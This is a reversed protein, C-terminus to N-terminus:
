RPQDPCLCRIGKAKTKKDYVEFPACGSCSGPDCRGRSPTTCHAGPPTETIEDRAPDYAIVRADGPPGTFLAVLEAPTGNEPITLGSRGDASPVMVTWCGAATAGRGEALSLAQEWEAARITPLYSAALRYRTEDGLRAQEAPSLMADGLRDLLEGFDTSDAMVVTGDSTVLERTALRVVEPQALVAEVLRNM